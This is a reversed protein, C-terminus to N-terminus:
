MISYGKFVTVSSGMRRPAAYFATLTEPCEYFWWISIFVFTFPNCIYVIIAGYDMKLEDASKLTACLLIDYKM